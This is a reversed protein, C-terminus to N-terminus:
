LQRLVMGAVVVMMMIVSIVIVIEQLTAIKSYISVSRPM